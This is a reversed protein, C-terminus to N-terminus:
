TTKQSPFQLTQNIAKAKRRSIEKNSKLATRAKEFEVDRMISYGYNKKKLYWEFSAMMARLSTPKYDENNEKKRATIIFESIFSSLEHPPIEKLLAVNQETKKRTNENEQGEIFEEESTIDAFRSNSSSSVM